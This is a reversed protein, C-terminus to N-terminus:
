SIKDVFKLIIFLVISCLFALILDQTLPFLAIFAMGAINEAFTGSFLNKVCSLTFFCAVILFPAYIPSFSALSKALPEFFALIVFFLATLCSAKGDRAGASIGIIPHESPTLMFMGALPAVTNVAFLPLKNRNEASLMKNFFSQFFFSVIHMLFFLELGLRLMSLDMDFMLSNEFLAPPAYFEEFAIYGEIYSLLVVLGAPIIIAFKKHKAYILISIILAFLSFKAAPNDMDGITAFSFSGPVLLKGLELGELILYLAVGFMYAPTMNPTFIKEELFKIIKRDLKLLTLLLGISSAIIASALIKEITEGKCITEIYVFSSINAYNPFLILPANSLCGMLFTGLAASFFIGSYAVSFNLGALELVAALAFAFPLFSLANLFSAILLTQWEVKAQPKNDNESSIKTKIFILSGGKM